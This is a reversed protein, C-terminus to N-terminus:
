KVHMRELQNDGACFVNTDDAFLIFKVLNSVNCIDNVYLIFLTPGLISGQPVGCIVDLLESSCGDINVFQKRNSLYSKLWDSAAGRVGYHELKKILIRHDVTDFAKKLDIFVGIAHKKNDTANTIEEILEMVALSTSLNTRFGYQSSSLINNVCLFSKIRTLFLKELIKSFQPLLSIPRYYDVPKHLM